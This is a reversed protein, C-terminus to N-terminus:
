GRPSHTQADLHHPLEPWCCQSVDTPLPLSPTRTSPNTGLRKEPLSTHGTVAPSSRTAGVRRGRRGPRAGAIEPESIIESIIKDLDGTTIDYDIVDEDSPHVVAPTSYSAGLPSPKHNGRHNMVSVTEKSVAGRATVTPTAKPSCYKREVEDRLDTIDDDEM